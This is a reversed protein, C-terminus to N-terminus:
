RMVVDFVIVSITVAVLRQVALVAYGSGDVSAIVQETQAVADDGVFGGVQRAVGDGGHELPQRFRM